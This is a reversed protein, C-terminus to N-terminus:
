YHQRSVHAAAAAAVSDIADDPMAAAYCSGAAYDARPTAAYDFMVRM